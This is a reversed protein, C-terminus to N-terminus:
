GMQFSGSYEIATLVCTTMRALDTTGPLYLTQSCTAGVPLSDPRARRISIPVSAFGLRPPGDSGTIFRLMKRKDAEELSLFCAWFIELAEDEPEFGVLRATRRLEDWDLTPQLLAQHIQEATGPRRSGDGVFGQRFYEVSLEIGSGVQEDDIWCLWEDVNELTVPQGDPFDVGSEDGAELSPKISEIAAILDPRGHALEVPQGLLRQFVALSLEV